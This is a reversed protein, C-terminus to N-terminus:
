KMEGQNKALYQRVWDLRPQWQHAPVKVTPDYWGFYDGDLSYIGEAKAVETIFDDAEDSLNPPINAKRLLWRVWNSCLGTNSTFYFNAEPYIHDKNEEAWALWETLFQIFLKQLTPQDSM